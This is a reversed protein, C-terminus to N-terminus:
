STREKWAGEDARTRMSEDTPEQSGRGLRLTGATAAPTPRLPPPGSKGQRHVSARLYDARRYLMVIVMAPLMVIMVAGSLTSHPIVGLVCLVVLVIALVVMAGAMEGSRQWGHGRYWMWIVMPVTMYVAMAMASLEPFRNALNSYGIFGMGARYVPGLLAMGLVMALIMEGLHELFGLWPRLRGFVTTPAAGGGNHAHLLNM